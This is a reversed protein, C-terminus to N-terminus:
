FIRKSMELNKRSKVESELAKERAEQRHHLRWLSFYRARM